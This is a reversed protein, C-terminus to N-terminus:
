NAIRERTASTAPIPASAEIVEVKPRVHLTSAYTMPKTVQKGDAASLTPASCPLVKKQRRIYITVDDSTARQESQKNM